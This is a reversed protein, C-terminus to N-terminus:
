EFTYGYKEFFDELAAELADQQTDFKDAAVEKFLDSHRRSVRANLRVALRNAESTPAKKPDFLQDPKRYIRKGKEDSALELGHKKTIKETQGLTLPKSKKQGVKETASQKPTNKQAQQDSNESAANTKANSSKSKSKQGQKRSM